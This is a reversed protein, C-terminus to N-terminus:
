FNFPYIQSGGYGERGTAIQKNQCGEQERNTEKAEEDRRNFLSEDAEIHYGAGGFIPIKDIYRKKILKRM